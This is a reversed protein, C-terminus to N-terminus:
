KHKISSDSIGSEPLSTTAPAAGLTDVSHVSPLPPSGAWPSRSIVVYYKGRTLIETALTPDTPSPSVDDLTPIRFLANKPLPDEPKLGLRKRREAELRLVATKQMKFTTVAYSDQHAAYMLSAHKSNLMDTPNAMINSEAAPRTQVVTVLPVQKLIKQYARRIARDTPFRVRALKPSLRWTSEPGEKANAALFGLTIPQRVASCRGYETHQYRHLNEAMSAALKTMDVAHETSLRSKRQGFKGQWFRQRITQPHTRKKLRSQEQQLWENLLAFMGKEARHELMRVTPGPLPPQVKGLLYRFHKRRGLYIRRPSDMSRHVLEPNMKSGQFQMLAHLVPHHTVDMRKREPLYLYPRLLANRVPGVRGYAYELIHQVARHRGQNAWHLRKVLFKAVNIRMKIRRPDALTRYRNFRLRIHQRLLLQANPDFFQGIERQISRYAHLAELRYNVQKAVTTTRTLFEM